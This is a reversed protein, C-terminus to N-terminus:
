DTWHAQIADIADMLQDIDASTNYFHPSVRLLGPRFDVTFGRAALADVTEEPKNLRLMVIGARERADRPSAVEYGSADARDVVRQTLYQLREWIREPGAELILDMGAVGAYATPVAPTGLELRDASAARRLTSADFHFQDAASFWGTISPELSEIL